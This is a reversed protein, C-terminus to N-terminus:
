YFRGYPRQMGAWFFLCCCLSSSPQAAQLLYVPLAQAAQGIALLM